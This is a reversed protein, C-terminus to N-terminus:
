LSNSLNLLMQAAEARTGTASPKFNGDKGGKVLGLQQAIAIETQYAANVQKADKFSLQNASVEFGSGYEFAKSLMYAMEERTIAKDANKGNLFNGALGLENALTISTAKWNSSNTDNEGLLNLVATAFEVKTITREPSFKDEAVGVMIRRAQIQAITDKAWTKSTDVFTSKVEAVIYQGNGANNVILSSSDTDLKSQVLTYTQKVDDYMFVGLKKAQKSAVPIELQVAKFDTKLQVGTTVALMQNTAKAKLAMDKELSVAHAKDTMAASNSITVSANTTELKLAAGSDKISKLDTAKLDVLMKNTASEITVVPKGVKDSVGIASMEKKLTSLSDSIAKTLAAPDSLLEQTAEIRGFLESFVSMNENLQKKDEWKNSAIQSKLEEVINAVILQKEADTLTEGAKAKNMAVDVAKQDATPAVPTAPQTAKPTTTPTTTTPTTTPATTPSQPESSSNTPREIPKCVLDGRDRVRIRAGEADISSLGIATLNYGVQLDTIKTDKTIYGDIFVRATVGSNDAIFISEVVGNSYQIKQVAGTVTVLSGLSASKAAQATTLKLPTPLPKITDDVITIRQVNLQREGNYSSTVGTVQVTQGARVDGAVPFLDIGATGDQVYVTDFFATNKDYGSANSTVIGQVTFTEGEKAAHVKAIDTIVIPNALRVVNELITYNSYAPTAYSDLTAQIEFNSMFGSGAVIISATQGNSYTVNESAAVMLKDAYKPVTIASGSAITTGDKDSDVSISTTFGYVLPNVTAPLVTAPNNAKDVAYISAGGYNSFVQEAPVVGKLLPNDLNYNKLYLRQASGGNTVPDQIEDDSIRLTSGLAALLKNQQASMQEEAPLKYPTNDSYKTYNEYNDSWGAVIVTRGSEAFAKIAAVEADSYSKYGLLFNIGNRRTPPTLVMMKYKSNQTAAILAESTELEVVRVDYGVAMNAFNGMSAKYNGRVYENYHSADIGIYVLKESDRVNIEIDQTFIKEQGDIIMVATVTIKTRGPTSPTYDFTHKYSATAAIETGLAESKLVTEGSKYEISKVTVTKEENNFLTSSLTLKEGTVPMGTGCEVSTIGVRPAQGIWVPSTVALNKDAQTVRVYYYGQTPPLELSWEVSNSDFTKSAAIRGSNTVIDIKSIADTSDPDDVLVSIQLPATPVETIITGLAQGNVTYQINLNKDETAYTSMNKLGNLLGNESLENTIIVTRSTNANGWNGKHNDQNNTPAVHWGKDLAKTYETYSPFYGGSGIAGEGNGVEVAVMKNDITPSWYAFDAFTGFTAGPHNFQSLNALPDTNKVLEAYYAKLGGDATKNNLTTNNRSVLGKSNFTNIHGPGGSWTMEYGPFAVVSGDNTANFTRMSSTYTNWKALSEATMKTTDNMAEAPNAAATTDFYNSHDTFAVFDVKDSEPIAQIYNLGDSLKGSGDSYEATHAHLQGFFARSTPTGVTFNWNATNTVGDERKVNVTVNYQGDALNSTKYEFVNAVITTMAKNDVIAVKDKTLTMKVEPTNGANGLTVSIVPSKDDGTIGNRAPVLKVFQPKADVIITKEASETNLGTVDTAIVKFKINESKMTIESAPVVFKYEDTGAAYAMAQDSVTKTGITYTIKVSQLGKNDAAKVAITYDVGPKADIYSDNLTVIPAKTDNTVDYISFGNAAQTGTYLQITSNNKAVMAYLDVVDGKLVQVPYPAANYINIKNSDKDTVITSGKAVFEGLTVNKIKVVQGLMTSGNALIDPITMEKPTVVAGAEAEITSVTISSLQPMNYRVEYKGTLKVVDGIKAGKPAAGFVYLAYTKGDIVSYIVPNSYTTAFYALTGKVTVNEVTGTLELAEKVTMVQNPDKVTYVFAAVDSNTLGDKVARVYYTAATNVTVASGSTWSNDTASVTNIEIAAGSTTTSFNVVTGADIMGPAKSATPTACKTEVVPGSTWAGNRPNPTATVFDNFNNDTDVGETKRVLATSVSMVPAAKGEFITAVGFGVLDVVSPDTAGSIATAKSALAVKGKSGSLDMTANTAEPTPLSTGNAGGSKLQVLYYKGPQIVGSLTVVAYTKAADKVPDADAAAYQVSWTSLDVPAGTPNYLEVFDNKCTSNADYGSSGYIQSIIVHGAPGTGSTDAFAPVVSTMTMLFAMFLSLTKRLSRKM